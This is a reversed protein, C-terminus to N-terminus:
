VGINRRNWAREYEWKGKIEDKIESKREIRERSIEENSRNWREAKINRESGGSRRACKYEM